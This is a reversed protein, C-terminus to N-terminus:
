KTGRASARVALAGYLMHSYRRAYASWSLSGRQVADLGCPADANAVAEVAAVLAAVDDVPVVKVCDSDGLLMQLDRAGTMESGIVPCGCAIAQIMVLGFGDQRSPLILCGARRYWDPLKAQDVTGQTHFWAADPVEADNIAGVHWLSFGRAGLQPMAKVLVDVGKQYSWGGVFLIMRPDRPVAADPMFMALDVGYPNRFLRTTEYGRSLFSQESHRSPVVVRDALAYGALERRVAMTSVGVVNPNLDRLRNLIDCQAEIHASGRELVLMAGHCRRAMHFAQLYIGSMGIFVDCPALKWTVLRDAARHIISDGADHWGLRRLLRALLLVPALWPLLAVHCRAPLGFRMARRKPVYSYFRVQHGLADLERALDLVHFRGLTAIAIRLPRDAGRSM